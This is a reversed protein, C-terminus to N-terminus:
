AREALRLFPSLTTTSKKPTLPALWSPQGDYRLTFRFATEDYNFRLHISTATQMGGKEGIFYRKFDAIGIDGADGLTAMKESLFLQRGMLTGNPNTALGQAPLWVPVGGTGVAISMTALQPFTDNNAVWVANKQCASPLRAWLNLINEAVVTDAAQGTEKAVTVLAPNSANFVGLARNAGSGTLFDDDEVYAIAEGFMQSLLPGLSIASDELLSNSVYCLGALEHLHLEVKGFTPNTPTKVGGEAPRYIIIGGFVNSAHSTDVVVPIQIVNSAMPIVTARPRVISAELSEMFLQNSFEIPVLYGGQAMDGEQMYGATKAVTNIATEWRELPEPREGKGRGAIYVARCFQSFNPFGGKPDAALREEGGAGVTINAGTDGGDAGLGPTFKRQIKEIGLETVLAKAVEKATETAIQKVDEIQEKTLM